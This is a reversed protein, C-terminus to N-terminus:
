QVIKYTKESLSSSTASVVRKVSSSMLWLRVLRMRVSTDSILTVRSNSRSCFSRPRPLSFCLFSTRTRGTMWVNQRKLKIKWWAHRFVTRKTSAEQRLNRVQDSLGSLGQGVAKKWPGALRRQAFVVGQSEDTVQLRDRSLSVAWQVAHVKGQDHSQQVAQVDAEYFLACLVPFTLINGWSANLRLGVEPSLEGLTSGTHRHLDEEPAAEASPAVTRTQPACDGSPCGATSAGRVAPRTDVPRPKTEWPGTEAEVLVPHPAARKFM